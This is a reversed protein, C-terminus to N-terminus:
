IHSPQPVHSVNDETREVHQKQYEVDDIHDASSDLKMDLPNKTAMKGVGYALDFTFLHTSPL